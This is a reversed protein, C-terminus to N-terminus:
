EKYVVEFEEFVVIMDETFEYNLEDKGEATFFAIHGKRWSELCDDEGEKKCLEYDVDKFPLLTVKTTQIVCHPNGAWDTVISYDGAKPMAGEAEWSILSSATAKKQGALVMDLLLNALKETMEFHFAELYRTNQDLKKDALFRNWFEEINNM